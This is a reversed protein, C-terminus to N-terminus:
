HGLEHAVVAVIQPITCGKGEGAVAAATTTTSTASPATNTNDNTSASADAGILTDFLVIRKNKFLGFFFANSHASRKSGEVMLLKTLPFDLKGALAEIADRLQGQPLDTYKDFIPAIFDPYISITILSFALMFLWTYFYFADGAWLLINVFAPVFLLM